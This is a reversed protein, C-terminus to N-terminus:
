PIRVVQGPRLVIKKGKKDGGIVEAWSVAKGVETLRVRAVQKGTLFLTRGAGTKIPEGRRLVLLEAGKALGNDTGGTVKVREGDVELIMGNWPQDAIKAVVWQAAEKELEAQLQDLLEAKPKKGMELGEAMVETIKVQRRISREGVQTGSGADLIIFQAELGLFPINERFGYLGKLERRVSIDVLAGRVVTNIGTLRAAYLQQDVETIGPATLRQMAAELVRYDVLVTGPNAKLAKELHRGIALSRPVYQSLTSRFPVVVVRKPLDTGTAPLAPTPNFISGVAKAAQCGTLTGAALAVLISLSLVVAARIVQSKQM